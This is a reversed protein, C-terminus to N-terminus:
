LTLSEDENYTHPDNQNTAGNGSDMLIDTITRHWQFGGLGNIERYLTISMDFASSFTGIPNFSVTALHSNVQTKTGEITLKNINDWVSTGGTGASSLTGDTNTIVSFQIEARYLVSDAQDGRTDTVVAINTLLESEGVIWFYPGQDVTMGADVDPTVDFIFYGNEQIYEGGIGPGAIVEQLWDIRFDSSDDLVSKNLVWDTSIATNIATQTGEFVMTSTGTGSLASSSVMVYVDDAPLNPSMTIRYTRGSGAGLQDAIQPPTPFTYNYKDEVIVLGTQEIFTADLVGTITVTAAVATTGHDFGDTTQQQQRSITATLVDGPILDNGVGTTSFPVIGLQGNLYTKDGSLTYTGAVGVAWPAGITGTTLNSLVLTITYQKNAALDTILGVNIPTVSYEGADQSTGISYENHTENNLVQISDSTGHVLNDTDQHQSYTLAYDVTYDAAPTANVDALEANCAAKTSSPFTFVTPGGSWGAISDIANADPVTLTMTYMKSVAEDTISGLNWNTVTDEAYNIGNSVADSVDFEDHSDNNLIAIGANDILTKWTTVAGSNWTPDNSDFDRTVTLTMATDGAYDVIPTFVFNSLAAQMQSLTQGNLTYLGNGNDLWGGEVYGYAGSDALQVTAHYFPNRTSTAWKSGRTDNITAIATSTSVDEQYNLTNFAVDAGDTPLYTFALANTQQEQIYPTVPLNDIEIVEQTYSVAFQESIDRDPGSFFIFYSPTGGGQTTTGNNAMAANVEAQTGEFVIPTTIVVGPSQVTWDTSFFGINALDSGFTVRYKRGAEDADNIAPVLSGGHTGIYWLYQDEEITVDQLINNADEVNTGIILIQGGNVSNIGDTLTTNIQFTDSADPNTFNIYLGSLTATLDAHVNQTYDDKVYESTITYTGAPSEVIPAVESTSEITFLSADGIVVDLTLTIVDTYDIGNSFTIPTLALTGVGEVYGTTYALGTGTISTGNTSFITSM